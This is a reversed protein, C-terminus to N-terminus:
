CFGNSHRLCQLKTLCSHLCIMSQITTYKEQTVKRVSLDRFDTRVNVNVVWAREAM